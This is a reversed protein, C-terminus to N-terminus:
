VYHQESTNILANFPHKITSIQKSMNKGATASRSSMGKTIPTEDANNIPTEIMAATVHQKM